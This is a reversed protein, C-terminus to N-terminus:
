RSRQTPKTRKTFETSKTLKTFKTPKTPKTPQAQKTQKTQKTQKPSNPSNPCSSSSAFGFSGFSGFSNSVSSVPFASSSSAFSRSSGPTRSRLGPGQTSRQTSQQTSRRGFRQRLPRLRQDKMATAFRLYFSSDLLAPETAAQRRRQAHGFRSGRLLPHRSRVGSRAAAAASREATRVRRRSVWSHSTLRPLTGGRLRALRRHSRRLRLQARLLTRGMRRLVARARRKEEASHRRGPAGGRKKKPKLILRLRRRREQLAETPTPRGRRPVARARKLRRRQAETVTRQMLGDLVLDRLLVGFRTEQAALRALPWWRRGGHHLATLSEGSLGESVTRSRQLRVAATRGKGLTRSWLARRRHWRLQQAASLAPSLTGPRGPTQESASLVRNM